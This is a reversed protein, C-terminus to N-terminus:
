PPNRYRFAIYLAVASAVVPIIQTFGVLWSQDRLHAITILLNLLVSFLSAAMLIKTAKAYRRRKV